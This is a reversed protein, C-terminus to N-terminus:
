SPQVVLRGILTLPLRGTRVTERRVVRGPFATRTAAEAQRLAIRFDYIWIHGAPRIVRRLERMGADLDPWHHQSMTSIVLDFAADPYPLAAVDGETFSVRDGHESLTANHRARAVMEASLDVGDVRLRPCASAVLLPVRGPGTGVDLVRAGEPLGAAVVDATVRSYFRRFLRNTIRDYGDAHRFPGYMRTGTRHLTRM